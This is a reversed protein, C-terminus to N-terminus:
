SHVESEVAVMRYSAGESWGVEIRVDCLDPTLPTITRSYNYTLVVQVDNVTGLVTLHGADNTQGSLPLALAAEMQQSAIEQALMESKGQQVARVSTPYVAVIGLFSVVFIFMALLLELLSFARAVQRKRM